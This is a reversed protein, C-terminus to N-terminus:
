QDTLKFRYFNKGSPAGLEFTKQSTTPNSWDDIDATEELTMTIVAEGSGSIDIRTSGLRADMVTQEIQSQTPANALATEATAQALLAADRAAVVADHVSQEIGGGTSPLLAIVATSDANPDLGLYQIEDYDSMGDSDSDALNPDTGTDTASVYLGTGTEVDDTLGDDDSDTDNPDTGTDTADVFTGTNTEVNDMLGDGDSDTSYSDPLITATFTGAGVYTFDESIDEGNRIFVVKDAFADERNQYQLGSVPQLTISTGYVECASLDVVMSNDTVQYIWTGDYEDLSSENANSRLTGISGDVGVNWQISCNGTISTKNTDGNCDSLINATSEIIAQGTDGNVRFLGIITGAVTVQENNQVELVGNVTGGAGITLMSTSTNDIDGNVTGNVTLSSSNQVALNGDLTGNLTLTSTQRTVLNGTYTSNLTLQSSNSVPLISDVTSGAELTATSNEKPDLTNLTSGSELTATSNERLTMKNLTSGSKLTVTGSDTVRLGDGNGVSIAGSSTLSSEQSIIFDGTTTLTATSEVTLDGDKGANDGQQGLWIQSVTASNGASLVTNYPTPESSTLSHYIQATDATGVGNEGSWNSNDSWDGSTGGQWNIFGAQLQATLASLLFASAITLKKHKM